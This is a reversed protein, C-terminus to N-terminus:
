DFKLSWTNVALEALLSQRENIKQMTWDDYECLSNTIWLESEAYKTKKDSFKSSKFDNNEKTKMLTLNGIRKYYAAHQEETFNPYNNEPNEPLIHELNVSDPDLNVILEPHEKDRKHNEIAALYYRAYKAKSVTAIKFQEKFPEDQPIVLSLSDRLESATKINELFVAHAKEAYTKELTGGGLGGIILNRVLWSVILKLSKKVEIPQFKKLIAFVLPRYQELGFYNLTEIYKKCLNDFDNWFSSNPNLIALYIDIDNKLNNVFTSVQTPNNIKNKIEKYLENKSERVFSNNYFWYHKIYTLLLSEDETEIKSVLEIWSKEVEDIRNGARGYLYNKILDIQALALGRDNLTEFITFANIDSPATIVIVKLKEDLFDKWDILINEDNNHNELMRKIFDSITKYSEKLYNNSLNGTETTTSNNIILNKYFENDQRSLELKPFYEKTRIDYASLYKTHIDNRDNSNQLLDRIVAYILSVSAIRQQGDVIENKNNNGVTLVITGLFYEDENFNNNIDNLLDKIHEIQWSYPRQYIPVKLNKNKILSGIGIFEYKIESM